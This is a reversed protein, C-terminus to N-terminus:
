ENVYFYKCYFRRRNLNGFVEPRRRTGVKKSVSISERGSDNMELFEKVRAMFAQLLDYDPHEEPTYKM